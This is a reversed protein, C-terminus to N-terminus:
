RPRIESHWPTHGHYIMPSCIFLRASLMFFVWAFFYVRVHTRRQVVFFILRGKNLSLNIRTPILVSKQILISLRLTDCEWM